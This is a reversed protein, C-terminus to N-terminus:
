KAFSFSLLGAKLKSGNYSQSYINIYYPKHKPKKVNSTKMETDM